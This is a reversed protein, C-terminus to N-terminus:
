RRFVRRDPRNQVCNLIHEVEVKLPEGNEQFVVESEDKINKLDPGTGKRHLM